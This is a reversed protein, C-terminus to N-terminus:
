RLGAVITKVNHRIMHEYTGDKAMSDSFLEGGIQVTHQRQHQCGAILAQMAKKPVSTEVFVAKINNDALYHVLENIKKVGPENETSIGQLGRVEYGYRQGFYRFADHATVLKRQTPPVQLLEQAIEQDLAKLQAEYAAAHRAYEDGHPPDFASLADRVVHVTQSWLGVDFWLHPDYHGEEDELIAADNIYDTVAFIPKQRAMRVLTDTLKGELNRGSYFIIDAEALMQADRPAPPYVHPDEGAPILQRVAVREGGVHKVLDAVMGTTAVVQIPYSGQYTERVAIPGPQQRQSNGRGCGLGVLAILGLVILLYTRREM